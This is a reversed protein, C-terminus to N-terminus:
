SLADISVLLGPIGHHSDNRSAQLTGLGIFLEAGPTVNGVQGIVHDNLHAAALGVPISVVPIGRPAPRGAAAVLKEAPVGLMNELINGDVPRPKIVFVLRGSDELAQTLVSLKPQEKGIAQMPMIEVATHHSGLRHLLAVHLEGTLEM